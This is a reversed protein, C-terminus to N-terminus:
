VPANRTKRRRLTVGDCRADLIELNQLADGGPRVPFDIQASFVGRAVDVRHLNNAFFVEHELVHYVLGHRFARRQNVRVVRENNLQEVRKGARPVQVDDRLVGHPPIQVRQQLLETTKRFRVRFLVRRLDNQRQLVAVCASNNM